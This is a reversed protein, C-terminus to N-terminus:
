KKIECSESTKQIQLFKLLSRTAEELQAQIETQLQRNRQYKEEVESEFQNQAEQLKANEAHFTEVLWQFYVLAGILIIIWIWSEIKKYIKKM